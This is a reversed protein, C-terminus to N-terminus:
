PLACPTAALSCAHHLLRGFEIEVICGRALATQEKDIAVRQRIAREVRQGLVERRAVAERSACQETERAHHHLEQLVVRGGAHNDAPVLLRGLPELEVGAVLARALRGRLEKLLLSWEEGLEDLGEAVAIEADDTALGVVHDARERADGVFLRDRRADDRRVTVGELEHAVEDAQHHVRAAHGLDQDVCRLADRLSEAYRVRRHGVQDAELTIGGVVDRTHGANALLRCGLEQVGVPREFADVLVDVLDLPRLAFLVQDLVAVLGEARALEARDHAVNGFQGVEVWARDEVRWRISRLEGLQEALPLHVLQQPAEVIELVQQRRKGRCAGHRRPRPLGRRTDTARFQLRMERVAKLGADGHSVAEEGDRRLLTVPKNIDGIGVQAGGEGLGCQDAMVDLGRQASDAGLADRGGEIRREGRIQQIGAAVAIGDIVEQTLVCQRDGGLAVAGIRQTLRDSDAVQALWEGVTQGIAAQQGQEGVELQWEHRHERLHLADADGDIDRDEFRDGLAARGLHGFQLDLRM